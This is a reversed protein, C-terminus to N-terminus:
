GASSTGGRSYRRINDKMTELLAVAEPFKKEVMRVMGETVRLKEGQKEVLLALCEKPLYAENTILRVTEETVDMNAGLEELLQMMISQQPTLKWYHAEIRVQMESVAKMVEQTINFNGGQTKFLVRLIRAGRYGNRIAASVIEETIILKAGQKVFLVEIIEIGQFINGMAAIVIEETIAINAGQKAFLQKIIADGHSTNGVAAIMIEETIVVNAGQEKIISYMIAPIGPHHMRALTTLLGNDFCIETGRGVFLMDIQEDAERRKAVEKLLESTVKVDASRKQMLLKMASHGCNKAIFQVMDETIESDMGREELLILMKGDGRMPKSIAKVLDITVSVSDRELGLLLKFMREDLYEAAQVMVREEIRSNSKIAELLETRFGRLQEARSPRSLVEEDIYAKALEMKSNLTDQHCKGQLHQRTMIVQLLLKEAIKWRNSSWYVSALVEKLSLIHIDDIGFLEECKEVDKKLKAEVMLLDGTDKLILAVEFSRMAKIANTKLYDPVLSNIEIQPLQPSSSHQGPILGWQWVLLFEHSYDPTSSMSLQFSSHKHTQQRLNVAIMIIGFHDEFARIITPNSAGELLCIIDNKRISQASAQLTWHVGCNKYYQFSIPRNNFTVEIYLRRFLTEWPITYDPLLGTTSSLHDSCMGLLAYVKDHRVTAKHNHYMDILEGLSLDGLLSSNYKPRFISGRILHITPRIVSQLDSYNKLLSELKSVGSCFTYGNMEVSGCIILISRALGVEQLVWIRQFWPRKLLRLISEQNRNSALLNRHKENEDDAAVRISELAMDSDDAAEGFYVIVQAAQGYIRPMLQIQLGKEQDDQQNICLADVWIVRELTHNRLRLLAAHLNATISLSGGDIYICHPPDDFGGWVYSLAEYLHTEKDSDQLSYNHLQGQLAATENRSPMLSLLRITSLDLPPLSAYSFPPM